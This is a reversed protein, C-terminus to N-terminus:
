YRICSALPNEDWGQADYVAMPKGASHWGAQYQVIVCRQFVSEAAYDIDSFAAVDTFPLSFEQATEGPLDGADSLLQITLVCTEEIQTLVWDSMGLFTICPTKGSTFRYPTYITKMGRHSPRIGSAVFEFLESKSAKVVRRLKYLAEWCDSPHLSAGIWEEDGVCHYEPADALGLRASSISSNNSGLPFALGCTFFLVFLVLKQVNWTPIM